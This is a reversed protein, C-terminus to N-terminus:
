TIGIVRFKSKDRFNLTAPTFKLSTLAQSSSPTWTVVNAELNGDPRQMACAFVKTATVSAYDQCHIIFDSYLGVPYNASYIVAIRQAANTGSYHAANTDGNAEINLVTQTAQTARLYCQIDLDTYGGVITGSSLSAVDGSAQVVLLQTATLAFYGPV